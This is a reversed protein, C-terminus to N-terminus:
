TIILSVVFDGARPRHRTFPLHFARPHYRGDGTNFQTRSESTPSLNNRRSRVFRGFIGRNGTEGHRSGRDSRSPQSTSPGPSSSPPQPRVHEFSPPIRGRTAGSRNVHATEIPFSSPFQEDETLNQAGLSSPRAFSRHGSEHAERDMSDLIRQSRTIDPM